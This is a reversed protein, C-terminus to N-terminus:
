GTGLGAVLTATDVVSALERLDALAAAQMVDAAITRGDIGVAAFTATADAAVFVEYGLDVATRVTSSVCLNTQMGAVAVSHVRLRRIRSLLETGVLASSTTKTIVVEGAIPAAEPKFEAGPSGPALPGEAAEHRVHMVPWSAARWAALLREVNRELVPTTRGTAEDMGRQLDVLVLVTYQPLSAM